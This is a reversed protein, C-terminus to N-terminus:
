HKGEAAIDYRALEDDIGVGVTRQLKLLDAYIGGSKALQKPTGIEDVRGDKLTVIRDVTAITSLRHAIILTTRGRM